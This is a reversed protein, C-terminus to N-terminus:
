LELLQIVFCFIARNFIQLNHTYADTRAFAHTRTHIHAHTHTHTYIYTHANTRTQTHTQTHTRTFKHFYLEEYLVYLWWCVCWSVEMCVCWCARVSENTVTSVVRRKRKHNILIGGGLDHNLRLQRSLSQTITITTIISIIIMIISIVDSEYGSASFWDFVGVLSM